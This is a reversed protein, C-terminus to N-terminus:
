MVEENKPMYKNVLKEKAKEIKIQMKPYHEELAFLLNEFMGYNNKDGFIKQCAGTGLFSDFERRLEICKEKELLIFEHTMKVQDDKYKKTLELLQEKYQSDIKKIKDSANMIREPLGIDTLDFEIYEGKDNVELKYTDENDLRLKEM